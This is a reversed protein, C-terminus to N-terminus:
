DGPRVNGPESHETRIATPVLREQAQQPRMAVGPAISRRTVAQRLHQGTDPGRRLYLHGRSRGGGSFFHVSRVSVV